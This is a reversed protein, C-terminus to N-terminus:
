LEAEFICQGNEKICNRIKIGLLLDAYEGLDGEDIGVEILMEMTYSGNGEFFKDITEIKEGLEELINEIEEQVGELNDEFFCYEVYNPENHCVGFRDAAVSSQL